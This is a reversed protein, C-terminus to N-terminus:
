EIEGADAGRYVQGRAEFLKGAFQAAHDEGGVLERTVASGIELRDPFERERSKGRLLGDEANGVFCRLPTSRWTPSRRKEDASLGGSVRVRLPPRSEGARLQPPPPPPPPGRLFFFWCFRPPVRGHHVPRGPFAVARGGGHGGIAFGRGGFGRAGFGGGVAHAGMGGGHAAMGGHGGGGHGGGGRASAIAPALAVAAGIAAIAAITMFSKRFM